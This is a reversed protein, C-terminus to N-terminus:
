EIEEVTLDVFQDDNLTGVGVNFGAIEKTSSEKITTRITKGGGNIVEIELIKKAWPYPIFGLFKQFKITVPRFYVTESSSGSSTTSRSAGSVSAAESSHARSKTVPTIEKLETKTTITREPTDTSETDAFTKRENSILALSYIKNNKSLDGKLIILESFREAKGTFKGITERTKTDYLKFEIDWIFLPRNNPSALSTQPKRTAIGEMIYTREDMVFKGKINERSMLANLSVPIEKSTEKDIATGRGLFWPSSPQPPEDENYIIVGRTQDEGDKGEVGITFISTGKQTATITTKMSRTEGPALDITLAEFKCGVFNTSGCGIHYTFKTGKVYTPCPEGISCIGHLDKITLTYDAKSTRTTQKEPELLVEVTKKDENDITPNTPDTDPTSIDSEPKPNTNSISNDGTTPEIRLDNVETKLINTDSAAFTPGVLLLFIGIGLMTLVAPNKRNRMNKALFSPKYITSPVLHFKNQTTM